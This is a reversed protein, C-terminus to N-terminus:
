PTSFVMQVLLGKAGTPVGDLDIYIRDATAVDDNATNVVPPTVADASDNEGNDISIRTSLMDADSGARKRRLQCLFGGGAGATDLTASCSTLLWGHLTGPIRYYAKGDGTTIAAGNPSTVLLTVIAPSTDEGGGLGYPLADVWQTTDGDSYYVKLRGENTKWWLPYSTPDEPPTDGFWPAGATGGGGSVLPTVVGESDMVAFAGDDGVFLKVVDAPPAVIDAEARLAFKIGGSM